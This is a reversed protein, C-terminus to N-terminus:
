DYYVEFIPTKVTNKAYFFLVGMGVRFVSGTHKGTAGGFCGQPVYSYGSLAAANLSQCPERYTIACSRSM